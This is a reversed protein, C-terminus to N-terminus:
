YSAATENVHIYVGFSNKRYGSFQMLQDIRQGAFEYAENKDIDALAAVRSNESLLSNHIGLFANLLNSHEDSIGSYCEIVSSKTIDNTNDTSVILVKSFSLEQEDFRKSSETEPSIARGFKNLSFAKMIMSDPYFNILVNKVESDPHLEPEISYEYIVQSLIDFMQISVVTNTPNQITFLLQKNTCIPQDDAPCINIFTIILITIFYKLKM